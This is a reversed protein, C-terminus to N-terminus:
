QLCCFVMSPLGSNTINCNKKREAVKEAMEQLQEEDRVMFSSIGSEKVGFPLLSNHCYQSCMLNVDVNRFQFLLLASAKVLNWYWDAFDWDHFPNKGQVGWQQRHTYSSILAVSVVTQVAFILSASGLGLSDGLLQYKCGSCWHCM